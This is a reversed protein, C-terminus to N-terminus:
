QKPCYPPCPDLYDFINSTGTLETGYKDRKVKQFTSDKRLGILITTFKQDRQPVHLLEPKVGLGIYLYKVHKDSLIEQLQATDIMLGKLPFDGKGPVTVLLPYHHAAYAAMMSDATPWFIPLAAEGGSDHPIHIFTSRTSDTSTTISTTKADSCAQTMWSLIFVSFLLQKM